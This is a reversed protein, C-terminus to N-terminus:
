PEKCIVVHSETVLSDIITAGNSDIVGTVQGITGGVATWYSEGTRLMSLYTLFYSVFKFPLTTPPLVMGAPCQADAFTKAKAVIVWADGSDPDTWMDGLGPFGDQGRAGQAGAAGAQGAAGDRGPSGAAGAKGAMGGVGDTGDRGKDGAAGQGGDQGPAATPVPTPDAKPAFDEASGCGVLALVLLIAKM